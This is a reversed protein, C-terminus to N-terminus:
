VVVYSHIDYVLCNGHLEEVKTIIADLVRYFKAHKELSTSTEKKSLPQAWVQKGWADKYVCAETERNLDYEYRSDLAILTIPLSAIMEGTYPDEEYLREDSSLVCNELLSERLKHGDHIATCVFFGYSEIKVEFSDDVIAQFLQGKKIAKLCAKESLNTM